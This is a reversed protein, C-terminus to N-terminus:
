PEPLKEVEEDTMMVYDIRYDGPDTDPDSEIDSQIWQGVATFSDVINDANAEGIIYGENDPTTLRLWKKKEM